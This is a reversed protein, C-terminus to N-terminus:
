PFKKINQRMQMYILSITGRSIELLIENGRLEETVASHIKVIGKCTSLPYPTTTCSVKRKRIVDSMQMNILYVINEINPLKELFVLNKKSAVKMTTYPMTWLHRLYM